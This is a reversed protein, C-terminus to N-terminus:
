FLCDVFIFYFLIFGAPSGYAIFKKLKMFNVVYKPNFKTGIENNCEALFKNTQLYTAYNPDRWANMPRHSFFLFIIIILSFSLFFSLFSHLPIFTVIIIFSLLSSILSSLSLFSLPFLSSILSRDLAWGSHDQQDRHQAIDHATDEGLGGYTYPPLSSVSHSPTLHSSTLPPSLLHSSSSFLILILLPHSSSSLLILILLPHASSSFSFLILFPHSSSLPFHFLTHPPLSYLHFSFLSHSSYSHTYTYINTHLLLHIFTHRTFIPLNIKILVLM